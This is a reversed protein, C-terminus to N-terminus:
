FCYHKHDIMFELESFVSFQYLVELVVCINEKFLFIWFKTMELLVIGEHISFSKSLKWQTKNYMWWINYFMKVYNNCNQVLYSVNQQIPTKNTSFSGVVLHSCMNKIIIGNENNKAHFLLPQLPYSLYMFSDAYHHHFLRLQPLGQDLNTEIGNNHFMTCLISSPHISPLNPVYKCIIYSYAYIHEICLNPACM